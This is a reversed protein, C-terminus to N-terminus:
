RTRAVAQRRVRARLAAVPIADFVSALPLRDPAEGQGTRRDIPALEELVVHGQWAQPRPWHRGGDTLAAFHRGAILIAADEDHVRAFAIVHDRHPGAVALPRYDGRAFVEGLTRRWALLRRTLALKIRGDQWSAALARWDTTEGLPDLAHARAAFDVPRRNDPDVLSLDWLETGQYFDPIGPMAAKLALQTLSNLAGLLATRQALADFSDIFVPDALIGDIFRALGSEYAEDPDLWSTEQKDERAAKRAFAQFRERLSAIDRDLPWAGILAQYLMYEHAASPARRGRAHQVHRANAARWQAVAAAWEDPLESLSLIRARADEGRKTDHTATATLGGAGDAVRARMRRHFEDVALGDAAPDGGVENLAILRHFRYFATDELAKAMVPGTLQQLKRVFRQARARSYGGRGPVVLDLTALDRLFDFIPRDDEPADAGAAAIVRDIVSRDTDSAGDVTVYTRYVPFHVIFRELAARLRHEAFDRTRCNGAAIRSLLTCLTRFESALLKELVYRKAGELITAFPRREGSVDQWARDLAPLGRPEVLVRSIVNLWEYGTTGDVGGFRPLPEGECMIKEIFVRFPQDADPRLRSILERLRGCYGAPDALGDVHDLRLGSLAGASILPAIRAHAADFTRDDEIRLGALSNIDFFRRYNIQASALRWHALRFAQRELLRHLARTGGDRGPRYFALGQVIVDAGGDIAALAKKFEEAEAYTPHGLRGLGRVHDLLARGTKTGSAGSHRVAAEVIGRYCPPAIPLRHEYYWASFSGENADYRLEIEGAELAEAYPRGLIPILVKDRPEFRLGNWEIDFARAHPSARGWELVDLWWPNDAYLVGMHNPVFDVILGLGAPRLAAILQALGDDGGLEDDIRGPDVMDYGHTSGARSKLIPSAYVHTIGLKQLYPVIAAAEPFGFAATLQLRYTAMPVAPSM